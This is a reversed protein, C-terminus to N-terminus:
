AILLFLTSNPSPTLSADTADCHVWRPRTSSSTSSGMGMGSMGSMGMGMGSMGMGSMGMGTDGSM